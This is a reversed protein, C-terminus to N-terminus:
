FQTKIQKHHLQWGMRCSKNPHQSNRGKCNKEGCDQCTNKCFDRRSAGGCGDQGCKQCTRKRSRKSVQSSTDKAKRKHSLALTQTSETEAVLNIDNEPPADDQYEIDQMVLDDNNSQMPFDNSALSQGAITRSVSHSTGIHHQTHQHQHVDATTLRFNYISDSTENSTQQLGQLVHQALPVVKYQMVPAGISREPNRNQRELAKIETLM